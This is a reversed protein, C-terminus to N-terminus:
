RQQGRASTTHWSPRMTHVNVAPKCILTFRHAIIAQAQRRWSREAAEMTRARKNGPQKPRDQLMKTGEKEAAQLPMSVLSNM